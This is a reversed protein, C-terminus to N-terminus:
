AMQRTFACSAYGEETLWYTIVGGQRVEYAEILGAHKLVQWWRSTWAEAEDLNPWALTVLREVAGLEVPQPYMAVLVEIAAQTMHKM